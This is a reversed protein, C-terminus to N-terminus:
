SVTLLGGNMVVLKGYKVKVYKANVQAQINIEANNEILITCFSKSESLTTSSTFIGWIISPTIVIQSINEILNFINSIDEITSWDSSVKVVKGNEGVFYINGTEPNYSVGFVNFGLLSSKDEWTNGLDNSKAVKGSNYIVILENTKYNFLLMEISSANLNSTLDIVNETAKEFRKLEGTSSGLWVYDKNDCIAQVDGNFNFINTLDKWTSLNTRHVYGNKQGIWFYMGDFIISMPIDTINNSLDTWTNEDWKGLIKTDGDNAGILWINNNYDYAGVVRKFGTSASVIVKDGQKIETESGYILQKNTISGILGKLAHPSILNDFIESEVEGIKLHRIKDNTGIFIRM